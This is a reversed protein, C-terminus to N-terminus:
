VNSVEKLKLAYEVGCKFGEIYKEKEYKETVIDEINNIIYVLSKEKEEKTKFKLQVMRRQYVVNIMYYGYPKDPEYSNRLIGIIGVTSIYSNGDITKIELM